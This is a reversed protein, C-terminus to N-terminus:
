YLCEKPIPHFIALFAREFFHPCEGNVDKDVFSILEQYSNKSRNLIHDRSLAFIGKYNIVNININPFLSNYWDRFPRIKCKQLKSDANKERNKDNELSYEELTFDGMANQIYDDHRTVVFVSNKKEEVLEVTRKTMDIKQPSMCSGPLFITIDALNDYNEIIHHLYTHVSVGVNQLKVIKKLNPPFYFKEDDGKNYIITSYKNYKEDRLWDLDENYRAVILEIKKDNNENEFHEYSYSYSYCFMFWILCFIIIFLLFFLLLLNSFENKKRVM